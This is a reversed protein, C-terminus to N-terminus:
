STKTELGSPLSEFRYGLDAYYKLVRPLAYLLKEAAKESDHFVVVDGEAATTTVNALCQESAVDPDYDMSLVSWMVTTLGYKPSEIQQQQFNTMRGYPPRFLKSDIWRKAEFVDNLFDIDDSEYGKMHSYTHNGVMHGADLIMQYTNPNQQVNKGICFFTATADFQKLIELVQPTIVAHPGDDFTLFLIKEDTDIKWVRGPHVWKAFFPIRPGIINKM